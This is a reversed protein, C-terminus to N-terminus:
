APQAVPSWEFFSKFSNWKKKVWSDTPNESEISAFYYAIVTFFFGFDASYDALISNQTIKDSGSVFFLIIAMVFSYVRNVICVFSVRAYNKFGIKYSRAPMMIFSSWLLVRFLTLTVALTITQIISNVQFRLISATIESAFGIIYLINALRFNNLGIFRYIHKAIIETLQLLWQDIIISVSNKM